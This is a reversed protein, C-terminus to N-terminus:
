GIVWYSNSISIIIFFYLIYLFLQQSNEPVFCLCLRWVSSDCHTWLLIFLFGCKCYTISFNCFMSSVSFVEFAGSFLTILVCLFLYNSQCCTEWWWNSLGSSLLPYRGLVLSFPSNVLFEVILPWVLGRLRSSNELWAWVSIAALASTRLLAPPHAAMLMGAEWFPPCWCRQSPKNLCLNSRGSGFNSTKLLDQLPGLTHM